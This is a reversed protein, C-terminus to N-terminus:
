GVDFGAMVRGDCGFFGGPMMSLSTCTSVASLHDSPVVTLALTRASEGAGRTSSPKLTDSKGRTPVHVLGSAFACNGNVSRMAENLGVAGGFVPAVSSTRTSCFPAHDGNM